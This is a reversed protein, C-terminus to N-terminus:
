LRLNEVNACLRAAAYSNLMSPKLSEETSYINLHFKCPVDSRPVHCPLACVCVCVCQWFDVHDFWMSKQVPGNLEADLIVDFSREHM